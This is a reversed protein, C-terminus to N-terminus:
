SRILDCFEHIDTVWREKGPVKATLPPDAGTRHLTDWVQYVVDDAPRTIVLNRFYQEYKLQQAPPIGFARHFSHRAIATIPQPNLKRLGDRMRFLAKGDILARYISGDKHYSLTEEDIKRPPSGNRCLCEAMEQLVPIGLNLINECMGLMWLREKFMQDDLQTYKPSAFIAKIVKSVNRVFKVENMSRGQNFAVPRAQCFDVEELRTTAGEIKMVCGMVNFFPQVHPAIREWVPTSVLPVCDDGNYFVCFDRPHLPINPITLGTQDNFMLNWDRDHICLRFLSFMLWSNVNNALATDMVGSMLQGKTTSMKFGGFKTFKPQLYSPILEALKHRAPLDLMRSLIYFKVLHIDRQHADARSQDVMVATVSGCVRKIFSMTHMLRVASAKSNLGKCFPSVDRGSERALPTSTKVGGGGVAYFAKEIMPILRAWELNGRRNMALIVRPDPLKHVHYLGAMWQDWPIFKTSATAEFKLFPSIKTDLALHLARKNLVRVRGKCVNVVYHDLPAEPVTDGFLGQGIMDVALKLLLSFANPTMAPRQNLVRNVGGVMIAVPCHTDIYFNPGGFQDLLAPTLVTIAKNSHQCRVNATDVVM